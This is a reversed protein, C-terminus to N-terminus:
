NVKLKLGSILKFISLNFSYENRLTEIRVTPSKKNITIGKKTKEKRNNTKIKRILVTWIRKVTM